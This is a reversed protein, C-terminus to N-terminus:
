QEWRTAWSASLNCMMVIFHHFPPIVSRSCHWSWRSPQTRCATTATQTCDVETRKWINVVFDKEGKNDQIDKRLVEKALNKLSHKFPLGRPHPYLAATDVVRGHVLRLVKLDSDLSHGVIITETNILRRLSRHVDALSTSVGSLAEATIGSFETNYDVISRTPM